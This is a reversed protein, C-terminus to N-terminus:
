GSIILYLALSALLVCSVIYFDYFYVFEYIHQLWSVRPPNLVAVDATTERFTCKLQQVHDPRFRLFRGGLKYASLKGERILRAIETEHIGLYKAVESTTWLKEM